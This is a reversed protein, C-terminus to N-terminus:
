STHQFWASAYPTVPSAQIAIRSSFHGLDLRDDVLAVDLSSGEEGGSVVAGSARQGKRRCAMSALIAEGGTSPLRELGSRASSPPTAPSPDHEAASPLEVGDGLDGSVGV